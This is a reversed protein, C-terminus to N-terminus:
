GRPTGAVEVVAAAYAVAAAECADLTGTLWACAFNTQTPPPTLRVARVEAAKLAADLAITAELPPAVLYAMPTGVALGAERALYEGLSSIVHPFVTVTRKGDADYFCADHALCRLLAELGAEIADPEAAALVGLIEGSLRGSAHAAGAYFSRAFIVDVPSHKTAEDLAVYLADDQDCTVLGLSTHSAPDGGYAVVLAPDANRLRRVSLVTPLIPELIM